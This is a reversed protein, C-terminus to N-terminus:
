LKSSWFEIFPEKWQGELIELPSQFRVHDLDQPETQMASLPNKEWM